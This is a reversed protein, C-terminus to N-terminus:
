TFFCSTSFYFYLSDPAIILSFLTLPTLPTLSTLSTLPTLHTLFHILNISVRWLTLSLYCLKLFAM